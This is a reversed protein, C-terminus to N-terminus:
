SALLFSVKFFNKQKNSKAPVNEDNKFIFPGFSTVFCYSDLKEKKKQKINSPHFFYGFFIFSPGFVHPDLDPLTSTLSATIRFDYRHFSLANYLPLATVLFLLLLLFVSKGIHTFSQTPDAHPDPDADVHYDPDDDVGRHRHRWVVSSNFM